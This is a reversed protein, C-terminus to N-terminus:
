SAPCIARMIGIHVGSFEDSIDTPLQKAKRRGEVPMAVLVAVQFSSGLSAAGNRDYRDVMKHARAQSHAREFLHWYTPASQVGSRFTWRPVPRTAYSKLPVEAVSLPKLHSLMLGERSIHPALIPLVEFMRPRRVLGFRDLVAARRPHRFFVLCRWTILVILIVISVGVAAPIAPSSKPQSSDSGHASPLPSLRSGGAPDPPGDVVQLIRNELAIKQTGM